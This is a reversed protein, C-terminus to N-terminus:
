RSATEGSSVSGSFQSGSPIGHGAFVVSRVKASSVTGGVGTEHGKGVPEFAQTGLMEVLHHVEGTGHNTVAVVRRMDGHGGAVKAITFQPSWKGDQGKAYLTEAGKDKALVTTQGPSSKGSASPVLNKTALGVPSTRVKVSLEPRGESVM